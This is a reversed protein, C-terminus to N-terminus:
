VTKTLPPMRNSEKPPQAPGRVRALCPSENGPRQWLHHHPDIISLDPELAPESVKAVWALDPVMVNGLQETEKTM